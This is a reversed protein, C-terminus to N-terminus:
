AQFSVEMACRGRRQSLVISLHQLAFEAEIVAFELSEFGLADDSGARAKELRARESVGRGVRDWRTGRCAMGARFPEMSREVNRNGKKRGTLQM